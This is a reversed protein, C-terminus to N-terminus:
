AARSSSAGDWNRSWSATAGGSIDRAAAHILELSVLLPVHAVDENEDERERGAEGRRLVLRLLFLFGVALDPHELAALEEPLLLEVLALPGLVPVLVLAVVDDVASPWWGAIDRL